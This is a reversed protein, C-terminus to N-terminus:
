AEPGWTAREPASWGPHKDRFKRAAERTRFVKTRRGKAAGAKTCTWLAEPKEAM